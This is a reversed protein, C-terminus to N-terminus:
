FPIDEDEAVGSVPVFDSTDPATGGEARDMFEVKLPWIEIQNKWEDTKKDKWNSENLSGSVLVTDGQALREDRLKEALQGFAKCHFVSRKNDSKPRVWEIAFITICKQGEERPEFIRPEWKVIGSVEVKNVSESMASGRGPTSTPITDGAWDPMRCISLAVADREEPKIHGREVLWDRIVQEDNM